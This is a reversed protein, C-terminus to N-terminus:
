DLDINYRNSKSLLISKQIQYKIQDFIASVDGVNQAQFFQGGPTNQALDDRLYSPMEPDNAMLGLTFITAKKGGSGPFTGNGIRTALAALQAHSDGPGNPAGDSVFLIFRNDLSPDAFLDRAAQTLPLTYETGEYPNIQGPGERNMWSVQRRMNPYRNNADVGELAVRRDWGQRSPNNQSPVNPASFTYFGLRTERYLTPDAEISLILNLLSGRAAEIRSVNNNMMSNWNPDRKCINQITDHIDSQAWNSLADVKQSYFKTQRWHISPWAANSQCNPADLINQDLYRDDWPTLPDDAAKATIIDLQDNFANPGSAFSLAIENPPTYGLSPDAYRYRLYPSAVVAHDPTSDGEANLISADRQSWMMSGSIDQVVIIGTKGQPTTVGSANYFFSSPMSLLLTGGTAASYVNLVANYYENGDPMLSNAQAANRVQWQYYVTSANNKVLCRSGASPFYAMKNIAPLNAHVFTAGKSQDYNCVFSDFHNSLTQEILTNALLLEKSKTGIVRAATGEASSPGGLHRVVPALALTLILMLMAVELLSVGPSWARMSRAVAAVPRTVPCVKIHRRIMCTGRSISMPSNEVANISRVVAFQVMKSANYSKSYNKGEGTSVLNLRALDLL